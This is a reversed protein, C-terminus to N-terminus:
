FNIFINSWQSAIAMLGAAILVAGSLMQYRVPSRHILTKLFATMVIFAPLSTLWFLFIVMSSMGLTQSQSALLLFSYLWLCPFLGTLLGLLLPFRDYYNKFRELIQFQFKYYKFFQNKNKLLNMQILGFSVFLVGFTISAITKVWHSERTMLFQSGTFLLSGVVLYSVLRGLHYSIFHQYTRFNCSLPGCMVGCHWSGLFGLVLVSGLITLQM